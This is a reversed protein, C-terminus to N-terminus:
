NVRARSPRFNGPVCAATTFLVDIIVRESSALMGQLMQKTVNLWQCHCWAYMHTYGNDLMHDVVESPETGMFVRYTFTNLEVLVPAGSAVFRKAGQLAFLESGEIDMKMFDIKDPVLSDLPSVGITQYKCAPNKEITRIDDKNSCFSTAEAGEVHSFTLETEESWVGRNIVEVNECGNAKVTARVYEANTPSAEIAYVKGTPGVLKSLLATHQGFNAGVDCVTMGEKVMGCFLKQTNPEYQGARIQPMVSTDDPSGCAIFSGV